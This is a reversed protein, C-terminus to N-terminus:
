KAGRTFSINNEKELLKEAWKKGHFALEFLAARRHTCPICNGCPKGNEPLECTWVYKFLGLEKLREYIATKSVYEYPDYFKINLGHWTNFANLIYTRIESKRWVEDEKIFGFFVDANAPALQLAIMEWLFQQPHRPNYDEEYDASVDTTVMNDRIDYGRKRLLGLIRKRAKKEADVKGRHLWNIDASITYLPLDHKKCLIALEAMLCTSDAGGSWIVIKPHLRDWILNDCNFFSPLLSFGETEDEHVKVM